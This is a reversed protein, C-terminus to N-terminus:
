ARVENLISEQIYDYFLQLNADLSFFEDLKLKYQPIIGYNCITGAIMNYKKDINIYLETSEASPSEFIFIKLKNIAEFEKKLAKLIRTEQKM